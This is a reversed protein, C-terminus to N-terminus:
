QALLAELVVAVGDEDNSLTHHTAVTQVEPAANAMAVGLGCERVMDVDNTDDGFAVVNSLPVGWDAMLVRLAEAKDCNCALIQAFYYKSSLMVRTEAPVTAFLSTLPALDEAFVLVKAAPQQAITALDAVQYPTPREPAERNLYLTGGVELGILADPVTALLENVLWANATPPILNEYYLQGDLHVEAGNYCILPLGHLEDPLSRFASRRPRGTAIVIRRGAAQWDSLAKVTRESLTHDSRLLTDDLDIAAVTITSSTRVLAATTSM